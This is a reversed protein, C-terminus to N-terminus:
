GVKEPFPIVHVDKKGEIPPFLESHSNKARKSGPEEPSDVAKRKNDLFTLLLSEKLLTVLTRSDYSGDSLGRKRIM